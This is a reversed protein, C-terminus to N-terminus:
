MGNMGITSSGPNGTTCAAKPVYLLVSRGSGIGAPGRRRPSDGQESAPPPLVIVWTLPVASRGATGGSRVVIGGFM